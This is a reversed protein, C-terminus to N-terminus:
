DIGNSRRTPASLARYTPAPSGYRLFTFVAEPAVATCITPFRWPTRVVRAIETETCSSASNAANIRIPCSTSCAFWGASVVM